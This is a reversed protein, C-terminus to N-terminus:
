KITELEADLNEAFAEWSYKKCHKKGAKGMQKALERNKGLKEMFEAFRSSDSEVLFGTKGHKVSHKPGGEDVSIIPKEYSGAEIPILGWDEKEAAFLVSFCNKYLKKWEDEPVDTKIEVREPLDSKLNELYEENQSSGALVLRFDELEAKEFADIVLQHRKYEQFRSPYFFYKEFNGSEADELAGGPPIVRMKEEPYLNKSLIREKTVESNVAIKDFKNWARQELFNYGKVALKTINRHLTGSNELYESQFEPLAVRLPTHVYGYVPIKNNSITVLSGLGTESVLLVDINGIDLKTLMSGVGFRIGKKLFGEPEKEESVVRVDLKQFTDFTQDEDYYLTYITVNHSSREAYEALVREAGGREKLYPHYLGIEM